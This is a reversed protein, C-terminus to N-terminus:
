QSPKLGPKLIFQNCAAQDVQPNLDFSDLFSYRQANCRGAFVPYSAVLYSTEPLAGTMELRPGQSM